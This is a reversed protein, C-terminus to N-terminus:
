KTEPIKQAEHFIKGNKMDHRGTQKRAKKIAQEKNEADIYVTKEAKKTVEYTDM